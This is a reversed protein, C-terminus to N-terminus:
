LSFRIISAFKKSFYNKNTLDRERKRTMLVVKWKMSGLRKKKMAAQHGNRRNAWKTVTPEFGRKWNDGM